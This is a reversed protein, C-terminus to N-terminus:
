LEIEAEEKVPPTMMDKNKAATVEKKVQQLVEPAQDVLWQAFFDTPDIGGTVQCIIGENVSKKGKLNVWKFYPADYRMVNLNIADGILARRETNASLIDHEFRDPNKRIIGILFKNIDQRGDKGYAFAFGYAKALRTALEDSIYEKHSPMTVRLLLQAIKTEFEVLLNSDVNPKIEKFQCPKQPSQKGSVYLSNDSCAPHNTLFWYLDTQGAQVMLLGNEFELGEPFALNYGENNPLYNTTYTIEYRQGKAADFWQYSPLIMWTKPTLIRTHWHGKDDKQRVETFHSETLRFTKDKDLVEAKQATLFGDPAPKKNILLM